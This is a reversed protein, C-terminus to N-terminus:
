PEDSVEVKRQKLWRSVARSAFGLAILVLAITGDREASGDAVLVCPGGYLLGTGFGSWWEAVERPSANDDSM